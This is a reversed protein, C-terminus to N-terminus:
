FRRRQRSGFRLLWGLVLTLGVMSVIAIFAYLVNLVAQLLFATWSAFAGLLATVIPVVLLAPIALLLGVLLNLKLWARLSGEPSLAYEFRLLQYRLVEASRRLPSLDALSTDVRPLSLPVSRSASKLAAFLSAHSRPSPLASSTSPNRRKSM